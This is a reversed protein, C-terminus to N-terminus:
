PFVHVQIFNPDTLHPVENCGTDKRWRIAINQVLRNDANRVTTHLGGPHFILMLCCGAMKIVINTSLIDTVSTQLALSPNKWPRFSAAGGLSSMGTFLFSSLPHQGKCFLFSFVSTKRGSWRYFWLWLFGDQVHLKLRNGFLFEFGM